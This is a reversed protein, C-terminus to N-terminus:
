QGRQGGGYANDATAMTTTTTTPRRRRRRGEGYDEDDYGTAGDDM